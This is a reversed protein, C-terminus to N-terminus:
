LDNRSKKRKIGQKAKSTHYVCDIAMTPAGEFLTEWRRVWAVPTAVGERPM